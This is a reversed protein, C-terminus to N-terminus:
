GLRVEIFNALDRATKEILDLDEGEIMVRVLPETGSPRIVVRGSGEFMKEIDEIKEKIKIDELYKYKNKNSVRANILVQPYNIMKENLISLKEKSEIMIKLLLLGTALGDGTTNLDLFIIHGSQEGGLSYNNKVMEELIYRDGVKTKMISMGQKELYKDLGMNTMVTGVVMNKNLMNNDKLYSACISLIHDGDVINGKEDIAIIRDGDGDFSIGIDANYELVKDQALKPNTSGCNDNINMGDPKDNLVIVEGGLDKFIKPAIKYLAGNGCDLVIKMQELNIDIKEKLYDIYDLAGETYIKSVGIDKGIPRNPVKSMDFIYEEIELEKEDTLKLGKDNFFKIGNYEGPNHSASIVVGAIARLKRVLYAVAPTPIVGVEIVDLGVSTLGAVLSAELMNGSKRTDRGIVVTGKEDKSLVYGAARGIKYALEPTLEKNAVGRVGDTGFLKTM